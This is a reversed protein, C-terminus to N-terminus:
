CFCHIRAAGDIPRRVDTLAARRLARAGPRAPGRPLLRPTRGARALRARYVDLREHLATSGVLDAFVITVVKRSAAAERHPNESTAISAGCTGCFQGGPEAETGCAPCRPTLPTGCGSCFRNNPRNARGCSACTMSAGKGPG